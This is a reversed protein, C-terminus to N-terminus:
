TGATPSLYGLSGPKTLKEPEATLGTAGPVAGLRLEQTIGGLTTTTRRLRGRGTTTTVYDQVFM